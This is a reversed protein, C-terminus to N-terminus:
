LELPDEKYDFKPHQGRNLKGLDSFREEDTLYDDDLGNGSIDFEDEDSILNDGFPDIEDYEADALDNHYDELATENKNHIVRAKNHAAEVEDPSTEKWAKFELDDWDEQDEDDLDFRGWEDTEEPDYIEDYDDPDAVYEPKFVPDFDTIKYNFMDRNNKDLMWDPPAHGEELLGLNRAIEISETYHIKGKKKADLKLAALKAELADKKAKEEAAYDTAIHKARPLPKGWQDSKWAKDLHWIYYQDEKIDDGDIDKRIKNGLFWDGLRARHGIKLEKLNGEELLGLSEIEKMEQETISGTKSYRVNYTDNAKPCRPPNNGERAKEVSFHPTGKIKPKITKASKIPTDWEAFPGENGKAYKVNYDEYIKRFNMM